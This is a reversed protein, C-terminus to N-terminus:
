RCLRARVQAPTLLALDRPARRGVGVGDALASRRRDGMLAEAYLVAADLDDPYRWSVKWMAEAYAEDLARRDGGPAAGYRVTLARIYAQERASAGGALRGAHRIAARAAREREPDLALNYNPGLALAEGWHAMACHPDLRAAEHFARIAEDHNFAYVLRVGQDFYQQARPSTTTIPHHHTGLNEFLPVRTADATLRAALLCAGALM